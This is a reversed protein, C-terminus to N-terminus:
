FSENMRRSVSNLGTTGRPVDVEVCFVIDADKRHKPQRPKYKLGCLASMQSRMSPTKVALQKVRWTSMARVKIIGLQSSANGPCVTVKPLDNAHITLQSKDHDPHAPTYVIRMGDNDVIHDVAVGNRMTDRAIAHSEGVTVSASGTVSAGNQSAEVGVTGTKSKTKSDQSSEKYQGDTDVEGRQRPVINQFDCPSDGSIHFSAKKLEYEAPGKFTLDSVEVARTGRLGEHEEREQMVLTLNRIPSTSGLVYRTASRHICTTLMVMESTQRLLPCQPRPRTSLRSISCETRRCM